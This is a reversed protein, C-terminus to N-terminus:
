KIREPTKYAVTGATSLYTVTSGDTIADWVTKQMVPLTIVGYPKYNAPPTGAFTITVTRTGIGYQRKGKTVKARQNNTVSGSPAANATTGFTAALTEPQVRVPHIEGDDTEYRSISFTGSSM